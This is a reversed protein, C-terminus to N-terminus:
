DHYITLNVKTRNIKHKRPYVYLDCRSGGKFETLDPRNRGEGFLVKTSVALAIQDRCDESMERERCRCNRQRADFRVFLPKTRLANGTSRLKDPMDCWLVIPTATVQHRRTVNVSSVGTLNKFTGDHYLARIENFRDRIRRM